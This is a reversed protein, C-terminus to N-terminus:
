LFSILSEKWILQANNMNFSPSGSLCAKMEKFFVFALRIFLYIERERELLKGVNRCAVKNGMYKIHTYMGCDVIWKCSKGKMLKAYYNKM